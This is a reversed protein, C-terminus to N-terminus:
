ILRFCIWVSENKPNSHQLILPKSNPTVDCPWGFDFRKSIMQNQFCQNYVNNKSDCNNKLSRSWQSTYKNMDLQPEDKDYTSRSEQIFHWRVWPECLLLIHILISYTHFYYNQCQWSNAVCSDFAFYCSTVFPRWAGHTVYM